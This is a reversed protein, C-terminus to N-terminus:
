SNKNRYRAEDTNPRLHNQAYLSPTCWCLGAPSLSYQCHRPPFDLNEFEVLSQGSNRSKLSIYNLYIVSNEKFFLCCVKSFATFSFSIQLVIDTQNEYQKFISKGGDIITKVIFKNVCPQCKREIYIQIDSQRVTKVLTM